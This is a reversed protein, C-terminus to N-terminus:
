SQLINERFKHIASITSRMLIEFQFQTHSFDWNSIRVIFTIEPVKYKQSIIKSLEHFMLSVVGIDSVYAPMM